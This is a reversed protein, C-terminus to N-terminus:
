EKNEKYERYIKKKIPFIDKWLKYCLNLWDYSKFVFLTGHPLADLLKAIKLGLEKLISKDARDNELM